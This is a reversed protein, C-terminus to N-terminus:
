VRIWFLKQTFPTQVWTLELPFNAEVPFNGWLLISGAVSHVALGFVVLSCNRGGSDLFLYLCLQIVNVFVQSLFFLVASCSAVIERKKSVYQNYVFHFSESRSETDLSIKKAYQKFAIFSVQSHAECHLRRWLRGQFVSTQQQPKLCGVFLRLWLRGQFVGCGDM